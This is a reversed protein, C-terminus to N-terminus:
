IQENGNGELYATLENVLVTLFQKDFTSMLAKAAAQPNHPLSLSTHPNPLSHGRVPEMPKPSNGGPRARPMKFRQSNGINTTDQKYTSDGRSVTRDEIQQIEASSVMEARYKGVTTGHVGLHRAIERDSLGVAKAHRLAARVAQEKDENTRQLGHTKNASFSHWQADAVTGQTVTAEIETMDAKLAAQVRHFGDALWYETGDHYVEVPPFIMGDLMAQAYEDITANSLKARPQTGGDMRIQDIRLQM